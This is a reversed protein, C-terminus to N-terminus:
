TNEEKLKSEDKMKAYMEPCAEEIDALLKLGVNQQGLNFSQQSGNPHFATRMPGCFDLLAMVFRRGRADGMVFRRDDLAIAAANKRRRDQEALQQHNAANLPLDRRYAM